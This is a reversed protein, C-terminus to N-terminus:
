SDFGDAFILDSMTSVWEWAGIDPAADRPHGSVDAGSSYLPDGQDVMASVMSAPRLDSAAPGIFGPDVSGSHIDFGTAAQWEGLSATDRVWDAGMTSPTFCLNYDMALYRTPLLDVDFCAFTGSGAYHIANSVLLHAGGEENLSIGYGAANPGFYTSNNRVTIADMPLDNAARSRDPAAIGISDFDTTANEQVILNNEIVCRQCSAVGIAIRGVNHLRNGRITVDTFGEAETYGPDVAIGWCGPAVKGLDEEIDNGEILLNSQKGHVVLSVASCNGGSDLTARYLRNGSIRMGNSVGSVYLNHDFVAMSGNNSFTSDLVQSGDSSGLWGFSRNSEVLADRLVIRDNRGDCQPDGSCDNSGALHVGIRFGEITVRQIVVDDIDNQLLFGSSSATEGQNSSVHLDEFVYGEEHDANGGDQLAFGHNDTLREIWPRPSEDNAWNPTYAGVTCPMDARCDANVWRDASTTVSWAGGRCLRISEGAALGAFALRAQEYSQM